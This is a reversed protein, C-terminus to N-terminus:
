GQARDVQPSSEDVGQTARAERGYGEAFETRQRDEERKKALDRAANDFVEKLYSTHWYGVSTAGTNMCRMDVMKLVGARVLRRLASRKVLDPYESREVPRSHKRNFIITAEAIQEDSVFAPIDAEPM